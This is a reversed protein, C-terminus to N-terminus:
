REYPKLLFLSCFIHSSIFMDLKWWDKLYLIVPIVKTTFVNLKLFYSKQRSFFYMTTQNGPIIHCSSSMLNSTSAVNPRMLPNIKKKLILRCSAPINYLCSASAVGEEDDAKRLDHLTRVSIYHCLICWPYKRDVNDQSSLWFIHMLTCSIQNHPKQCLSIQYSCYHNNIINLQELGYKHM